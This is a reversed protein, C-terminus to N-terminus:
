SDKSLADLVSQIATRQHNLRTRLDPGASAYRENIETLEARLLERDSTSKRTRGGSTTKAASLVAPPLTPPSNLPAPIYLPQSTLTRFLGDYSDLDDPDVYFRQLRSLDSPVTSDSIGPFMVLKVKRQWESQHKAFEGHLADAEGVAGAGETPKNKGSWRDAWPTSVVVLVYESTAIKGPGYRGWDIEEDSFHYLDVDADIGGSQRLTTTFTAVRREWEQVESEKWSSAAHAWSVFATTSGQKENVQSVETSAKTEKLTQAPKHFGLTLADGQIKRAVSIAARASEFESEM